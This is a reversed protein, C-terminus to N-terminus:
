VVSKRDAYNATPSNNTQYQHYSGAQNTLMAVHTYSYDFGPHPNDGVGLQAWLSARGIDSIATGSSGNRRGYHSDHTYNYWNSHHPFMPLSIDIYANGGAAAGPAYDGASDFLKTHATSDNWRPNIAITGINTASHQVIPIPIHTFGIPLSTSSLIAM